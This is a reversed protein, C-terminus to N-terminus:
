VRERVRHRGEPHQQHHANQEAAARAEEDAPPHVRRWQPVLRGEVDGEGPVGDVGWTQKVQEGDDVKKEGWVSYFQPQWRHYQHLM